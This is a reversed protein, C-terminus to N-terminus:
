ALVQRRNLANAIADTGGRNLWSEVDASDLAQVVVTTGGGGGGPLGATIPSTIGQGSPIVFAGGGNAPPTVTGNANLSGRANAIGPDVGYTSTTGGGGGGIRPINPVGPIKGITSNYADIMENIIGTVTSQVGSFAGGVLGSIGGVLGSIVTVAASVPSELLGQVTSWTDTFWGIVGEAAGLIASRVGFMDTALFVLPAFPGSLITAILQWNNVFFDYVKTAGDVIFGFIPELVKWVADVATGLFPVKEVITDWHKVLLVVGAALLAFSGIILLIPANAVIFAAAQATLATVHTWAAAVAPGIAGPLLMLQKIFAPFGVLIGEIGGGVDAASAAWEQMPGVNLGFQEEAVTLLDSIGRLGQEASGAADAIEGLMEQVGSGGGKATNELEEGVDAVQGKLERLVQEAENVARIAFGLKQNGTAM